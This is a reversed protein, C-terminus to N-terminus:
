RRGSRVEKAINLIARHDSPSKPLIVLKGSTLRLKGHKRGPAFVAGDRVLARVLKNIDKDACYNQMDNGRLDRPFFSEGASEVEPRHKQPPSYQRAVAHAPCVALARHPLTVHMGRAGRLQASKPQIHALTDSM